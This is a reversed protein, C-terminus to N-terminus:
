GNRSVETVTGERVKVGATDRDFALSADRDDNPLLTSHITICM